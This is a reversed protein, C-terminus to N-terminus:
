SHARWFTTLQALTLQLVTHNTNETHRQQTDNNHTCVHTRIDACHQTHGRNCTSRRSGTSHYGTRVSTNCASLLCERKPLANQTKTLTLKATTHTHTSRPVTCHTDAKSYHIRTHEKPCHLSHWTQQLTHTHAGQSLATLTLKATTYTHTSRPVTCHTDAKSYHIHTHEKPCHLSGLVTNRIYMHVHTYTRVTHVIHVYSSRWEGCRM